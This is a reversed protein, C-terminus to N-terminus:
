GELNVHIGVIEQLRNLIEGRMSPKCIKRWVKGFDENICLTNGATKADGPSFDLRVMRSYEPSTSCGSRKISFVRVPSISCANWRFQVPRGRLTYVTLYSNLKQGSCLISGRSSM